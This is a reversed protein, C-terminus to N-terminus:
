NTSPLGEGLLVREFAKKYTDKSHDFVMRDLVALHRSFREPSPASTVLYWVEDTLAALINQLSM